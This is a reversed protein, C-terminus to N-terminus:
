SVIALQFKNANQTGRISLANGVSACCMYYLCAMQTATGAYADEVAYHATTTGFLFFPCYLVVVRPNGTSASVLIGAPTGTKTTTSSYLFAVSSFTYSGSNTTMISCLAPVVASASDNTIKCNSVTDCTATGTFKLVNQVGKATLICNNMTLSSSKTILILPDLGASGSSSILCNTVRLRTNTASPNFNLGCGSANNPAYIFCNELNLISDVSSIFSVAGNILLGSISCANSFLSSTSDALNVLISGDLQCGVGVSYPSDGMGVLNIKYSINLNETYVGPGIMVYRYENDSIIATECVAIAAAITAYPNEVSGNGLEDDGNTSVHYVNEIKYTPLLQSCKVSSAFTASSFGELDANTGSYIKNTADRVILTGNCFSARDGTNYLEGACGLLNNAYIDGDCSFTPRYGGTDGSGALTLYNNAGSYLYPLENGNLDDKFTVGSVNNLKHKAMDVDGVAAYNAWLEPTDPTIAPDLTTYHLTKCTLENIGTISADTDSTILNDASVVKLVNSSGLSCDGSSILSGVTLSGSVDLAAEVHLKDQVKSLQYGGITATDCSIGGTVGLSGDLFVSYGAGNTPIITGVSLGGTCVMVEANLQSAVLVGSTGTLQLVGDNDALIHGNITTSVSTNLTDVSLFSTNFNESM